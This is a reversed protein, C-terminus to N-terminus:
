VFCLESLAHQRADRRPLAKALSRFQKSYAAVREGVPKSAFAPAFAERGAGANRTVLLDRGPHQTLDDALGGVYVSALDGLFEAAGVRRNTVRQTTM